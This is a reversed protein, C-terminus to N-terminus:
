VARGRMPVFTGPVWRDIRWCDPWDGEVGIWTAGSEKILRRTLQCRWAYFEHTGHSAEGIAVYRRARALDVLADLAGEGDLPRALSRLSDAVDHQNEGM